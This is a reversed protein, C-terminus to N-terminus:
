EREVDDDFHAAVHASLALESGVFSKSCVPCTLLGGDRSVSDGSNSKSTSATPRSTEDLGKQCSSTSTDSGRERQEFTLRDQLPVPAAREKRSNLSEGATFFPKYEMPRDMSNYFKTAGNDASDEGGDHEISRLVEDDLPGLAAWM